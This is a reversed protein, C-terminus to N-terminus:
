VEDNSLLVNDLPDGALVWPYVMEFSDVIFDLIVPGDFELARKIAPVIEEEKEVRIGLAGYSEAM